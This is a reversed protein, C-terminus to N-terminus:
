APKGLYRAWLDPRNKKIWKKSDDSLRAIDRVTMVERGSSSPLGSISPPRKANREITEIVERRGQEVGSVKAEATTSASMRGKAYEYLAAPPNPQGYYIFNHLFVDRPPRTGNATEIDEWVGSKKLVDYFDPNDRVFAMEQVRLVDKKAEAQVRTLREEHEAQMDHLQDTYDEHIWDAAENWDRATNFDRAKREKKERPPQPQRQVAEAYRARAQEIVDFATSSPEPRRRAREIDLDTPEVKAPAAEKAPEEAPKTVEPEAEVKAGLAPEGRLESEFAERIEKPLDDVPLAEDTPRETTETAM